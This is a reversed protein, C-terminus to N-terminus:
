YIGRKSVENNVQLTAKWVRWFDRWQISHTKNQGFVPVFLLTKAFGTNKELSAYLFPSHRDGQHFLDIIWTPRTEIGAMM